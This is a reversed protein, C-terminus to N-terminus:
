TDYHIGFILVATNMGAMSRDKKIIVYTVNYLQYTPLVIETKSLKM